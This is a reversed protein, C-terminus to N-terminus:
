GEAAESLGCRGCTARGFLFAFEFWGCAPCQWVAQLKQKLRQMAKMMSVIM